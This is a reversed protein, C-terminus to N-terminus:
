DQAANQPADPSRASDLWVTNWAQAEVPHGVFEVKAGDMVCFGLSKAGLALRGETLDRLAHCFALPLNLPWGAAPPPLITIRTTIRGGLVVEESFLLRERVGGTFRDIANHDLALIHDDAAKAVADDVIVRAAQGRPPDNDAQSPAADDKDASNDLKKKAAGFFAELEPPRSQWAELDSADPPDDPDITHGELRHWHFLTRHALPGKIGTGPVLLRATAGDDPRLRGQGSSWDVHSERSPALQVDKNRPEPEGGQPGTLGDPKRLDSQGTRVPDGSSGVRWLGLPHLCLTVTVTANSQDSNAQATLAPLIDAFGDQNSPQTRRTERIAEPDSLALLRHGARKINVRGYGRRAAGGIRFAPHLLLSLVEILTARGETEGAWLALEFSFRTGRPVAVREFKGRGAVTHTHSLAVHERQVPAEAALLRLLGDDFDPAEHRLKTVAVDTSDHVHGFNFFLRGAAGQPDYKPNSERPHLDGPSRKTADIAAREQATLDGQSYGFRAMTKERGHTAEHLHRLVGQLSAGAIQPLGSADRSLVVDFLGAEGSACSLPSEAELTVRALHLCEPM